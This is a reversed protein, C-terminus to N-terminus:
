LKGHVVFKQLKEDDHKVVKDLKKKTRYVNCPQSFM